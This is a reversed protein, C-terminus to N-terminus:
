TCGVENGYSAILERALRQSMPRGTKNRAAAIIWKMALMQRRKDNLPAPVQYVRGGRRVAVLGITPKVNDVAQFFVGVPDVAADPTAADSGADRSRQQQQQKLQWLKLEELSEQFIREATAKKGHKMLYNVFKRSAADQPVAGAQVAATGHLLRPGSATDAAGPGVLAPAAAGARLSCCRQRAVRLMSQM